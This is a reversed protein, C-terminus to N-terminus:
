DCVTLRVPDAAAPSLDTSLAGLLTGMPRCTGDMCVRWDATAGSRRLLVERQPPLLPHAVYFRGERTADEPPEMGAGSGEVRVTDLVLGQPTARWDEQWESKEVSHTWALTFAVALRAVHAGTILCAVPM